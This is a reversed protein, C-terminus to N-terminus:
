SRDKVAHALLTFGEKTGPEELMGGDLQYGHKEAEIEFARKLVLRTRIDDLTPTEIEMYLTAKIM